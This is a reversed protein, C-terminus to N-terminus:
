SQPHPKNTAPQKRCFYSILAPLLSIMIIAIIIWGFHAKVMPLNGFFYGAGTLLGIWLIAGAANYFIFKKYNMKVMGIVFPIFSRIIPMFRAIIIANAGYKEFFHHANDVKKPNIWRPYKLLHIGVWRGLAYNIIGGVTAAILLLTVLWYINMYGLSTISGAAFLLSDGPLFSTLICASECFIVTFLLAYILEPYNTALSVLQTDMNMVFNLATALMSM